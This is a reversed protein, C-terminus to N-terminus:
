DMELVPATDVTAPPAESWAYSANHPGDHGRDRKCRFDVAEGTDSEWLTRVNDCPERPPKDTKARDVSVVKGAYDSMSLVPPSARLELLKHLNAITEEYSNNGEGLGRLRDLLTLLATNRGADSSSPAMVKMWDQIADLVKSTAKANIM